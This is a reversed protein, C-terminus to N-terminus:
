PNVVQITDGPATVTCHPPFQTSNSSILIGKDSWRIYGTVVEGIALTGTLWKSKATMM